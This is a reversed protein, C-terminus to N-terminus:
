QGNVMLPCLALMGHEEVKEGLIRDFTLVLGDAKQKAGLAFVLVDHLFSPSSRPQAGPAAIVM